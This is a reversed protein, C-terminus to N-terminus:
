DFEITNWFYNVRHPEQHASKGGVGDNRIVSTNAQCIEHFPILCDWLVETPIYVSHFMGQHM